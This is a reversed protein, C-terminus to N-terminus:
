GGLLEMTLKQKIDIEPNSGISVPFQASFKIQYEQDYKEIRGTDINFLEEGRGQMDLVQYGRLFGFTGSMQFRGSYPIPWGDPTSESWGTPASESVSYKSSIVAVQGKETRRVEDLSYTVDRAKRLVMPTPILLRSTWSQGIEVGEAANPISSVSDWLFWQSAWFDSIMDPEKIRGQKRGPRFANEGLECILANLQSYDAIRGNPAIKLTFSKGPLTEVADKHRAKASTRQVKVSECTAKVTTLGYPEIEVPRYAVVMEFLEKYESVKDKASATKNQSPDWNINIDRSSVFKYRLSQGQKFDISLLKRGGAAGGTCGTVASLAVAGIFCLIRKM